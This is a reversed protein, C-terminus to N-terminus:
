RTEPAISAGAPLSQSTAIANELLPQRPPPECPVGIVAKVTKDGPVTWKSRRMFLIAQEILSKYTKDFLWAKKSKKWLSAGQNTGDRSFSAVIPISDGNVCGSPPPVNPDPRLYKEQSEESLFSNQARVQFVLVILLVAALYKM